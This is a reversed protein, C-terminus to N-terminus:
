IDFLFLNVLIRMTVRDINRDNLVRFASIEFYKPKRKKLALNTLAVYNVGKLM